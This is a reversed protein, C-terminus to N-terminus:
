RTGAQHPRPAVGPRWRGQRDTHPTLPARVLRVGASKGASDCASRPTPATLRLVGYQRSDSLRGAVGHALGGPDTQDGRAARRVSPLLHITILAYSYFFVM